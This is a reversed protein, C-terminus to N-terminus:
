LRDDFTALGGRKAQQAIRSKAAPDGYLSWRLFETTTGIVAEYDAATTLHKGKTVSLLARSWPVADYTTKGSSYSVVDDRRGHVFLMAAPPGTFPTRGFDKGALVIGARLRNDRRGTFLGVTTIGGASHGAAGIRGQDIRGTLVDGSLELLSTIVHSADAPQNVIDVVKFPKADHSTFPYQPAAVIFGAQAWVTLLLNYDTPLGTLGHSFLVLPFPGPAPAARDAPANGPNGQAPYWVVVPLPRDERVFRYRRIGVAFTKAPAQGVPAVIPVPATPGFSPPASPAAPPPPAPPGAAPASSSCATLAGALAATTLIGATRRFM